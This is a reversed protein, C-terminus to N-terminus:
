DDKNLIKIIYKTFVIVAGEIGVLFVCIIRIFLKRFESKEILVKASELITFTYMEENM